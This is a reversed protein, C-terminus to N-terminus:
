RNLIWPKETASLATELNSRATPNTENMFKKFVHEWEKDAGYQVGYYLVTRRLDTPIRNFQYQNSFSIM